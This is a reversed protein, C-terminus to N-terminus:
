SLKCPEGSRGESPGQPRKDSGLPLRTYCVSGPKGNLMPKQKVLSTKIPRPTNRTQNAIASKGPQEFSTPQEESTSSPQKPKPNEKTVQGPTKAPLANANKTSLPHPSQSPRASLPATSTEKGDQCLKVGAKPGSSRGGTSSPFEPAAGEASLSGRESSAHLGEASPARLPQSSRDAGRAAHLGRGSVTESAHLVGVHPNSKPVGGGKGGAALSVRGPSAHLGGAPPEPIGKGQDGGGVAHLDRGSSAFSGGAPPNSKSSRPDPLQPEGASPKTQSTLPNAASAREFSPKGFTKSPLPSQPMARPLPRELGPTSRTDTPEHDNGPPVRRAEDPPKPVTGSSPRQVHSREKNEDSPFRIGRGSLPPFDKGSASAELKAKKKRHQRGGRSRSRRKKSGEEKSAVSLRPNSPSREASSERSNMHDNRARREHAPIKDQFEKSLPTTRPDAVPKSSKATTFPESRPDLFLNSVARYFYM